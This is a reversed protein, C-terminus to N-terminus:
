ENREQQNSNPELEPKPETLDSNNRNSNNLNSELNSNEDKLDPFDELVKEFFPNYNSHRPRTVIFIEIICHLIKSEPENNELENNKYKNCIIIINSAANFYEKPLKLISRKKISNCFELLMNVNLIFTNESTSATNLLADKSIQKNVEWLYTPFHLLPLNLSEENNKENIQSDNINLESIENPIRNEYVSKIINDVDDMDVYFKEGLEYTENILKDNAMARLTNTDLTALDKRLNEKRENRLRAVYIATWFANDTLKDILCYKENLNNKLNNKIAMLVKPSKYTIIINKESLYDYIIKQGSNFRVNIIYNRLSFFIYILDHNLDEAIGKLLEPKAYLELLEDNSLKEFRNILEEEDKIYEQRAKELEEILSSSPEM